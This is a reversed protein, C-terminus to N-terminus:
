ASLSRPAATLSDELPTGATIVAVSIGHASARLVAPDFDRRSRGAFTETAAVVLSVRRGGAMLELMPEVAFAPRGTVVVVERALRVAGAPARLTSVVRAGAVPSVAALADLATEWDHGVSRISVPAFLPSSGVIVTRRGHLAHARALAGAARVCADFSSRGDPGAVADADQDLVIVVEDRPADDLDKVMLRQRRATSPWHVSRLPEGAAYDRVAHIEFGSARRFTSRAAGAERAGHTSFVSRLVPIRPRVLVFLGDEM